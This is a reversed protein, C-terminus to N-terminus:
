KVAKKDLLNYRNMVDTIRNCAAIVCDDKAQGTLGASYPNWGQRLAWKVAQKMLQLDQTNQAQAPTVKAM